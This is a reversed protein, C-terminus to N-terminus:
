HNSEELCIINKFNINQQHLRPATFNSIQTLNQSPINNNLSIEPIAM